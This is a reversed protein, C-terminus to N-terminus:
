RPMHNLALVRTGIGSRNEALLEQAAEKEQRSKVSREGTESGQPWIDSLYYQSGYRNFVVKGPGNVDRTMEPNAMVFASRSDGRLLIVHESEIEVRYVGAPLTQSGTHFAFPVNVQLVEEQAFAKAGSAAAAAATVLTCALMVRRLNSISTTKMATEGKLFAARLGGEIM